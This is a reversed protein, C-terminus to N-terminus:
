SKTHLLTPLQKGSSELSRIPSTGITSLTTASTPIFTCTVFSALLRLLFAQLHPPFLILQKQALKRPPPSLPLICTCTHISFRPLYSRLAIRLRSNWLLIYSDIPNIVSTFSQSSFNHPFVSKSKCTQLARCRACSGERRYLLGFSSGGCASM